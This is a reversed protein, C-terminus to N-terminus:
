YTNSTRRKVQFVVILKQEPYLEYSIRYSGVRRRWVHEEGGIKRIDGAYPNDPLLRIVEAIATADRRPFRKVVKWVSADIKLEWNEPSSM